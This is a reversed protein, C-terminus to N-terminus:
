LGLTPARTRTARRHLYEGKEFRPLNIVGTGHSADGRARNFLWLEHEDWLPSVFHKDVSDTPRYRMPYACAGWHCIEDVRRYIEDPTDGQGTAPDYYNYLVYVLIHNGSVGRRRLLDIAQRVPERMEPSDYALYVNRAGLRRILHTNKWTVLRADLGQPISVRKGLRILEKALVEFEPHALANNDWLEVEPRSLDLQSLVTEVPKPRFGAGDHTTVACWPCHRVCGRSAFTVSTDGPWLDWAPPVDEAWDLLGVHPVIGTATQVDDPMLSAWIGGISVEADPWAGRAALVTEIIPDRDYTFLTGICVQDPPEDILPHIQRVLRVEDGQKRYYNAIKLLGLPVLQRRRRPAQFPWVLLIM